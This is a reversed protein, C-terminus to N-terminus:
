NKHLEVKMMSMIKQLYDRTVVKHKRVETGWSGTYQPISIYHQTQTGMSPVTKM